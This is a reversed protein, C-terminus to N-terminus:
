RGARPYCGLVKLYSTHERMTAIANRAAESELNGEFDVYFLYEFPSNPRPRSELKTLNLGQDALVNLCRVLAGQEHRTSFILSTKCAISEDLRLPTRAVVMFRTYNDKQNEINRALVRLGYLDAARESAVAAQARDADDRVKQVSMATDTFSQVACDDLGALFVSCQALAQPHSYVRRIQELSSTPLAVLCHEVKLVEEGVVSLNTQALLDYAENISGATTNEVPLMGYDAAGTSVAQLLSLFSSQGRCEIEGDWAAFHREAAIQSYAGEAGQFSVIARRRAREGTNRQDLVHHQQVRLSFDFIERYLSRVFYGSLGLQQALASLQALVDAERASDRLALASGTKLRTLEQVHRKRDALAQVIARDIADISVRIAEIGSSKAPPM